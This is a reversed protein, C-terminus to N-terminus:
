SAQLWIKLKLEKDNARQKIEMEEVTKVYPVKGVEVLFKRVSSFDGRAVANILIADGGRALTTFDPNVTVLEMGSKRAIGKFLSPIVGINEKPLAKREPLFLTDPM